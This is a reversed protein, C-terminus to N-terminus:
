CSLLVIVAVCASQKALLHSRLSCSISEVDMVHAADAYDCGSDFSYIASLPICSQTFEVMEGNKEARQRQFSRLSMGRLECRMM